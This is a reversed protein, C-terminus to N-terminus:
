SLYRYDITKPCSVLFSRNISEVYSNSLNNEYKESNSCFLEVGKKIKNYLNTHSKLNLNLYSSGSCDSCNSHDGCWHLLYNNINKLIGKIM